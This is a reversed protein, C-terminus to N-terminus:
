GDPENQRRRREWAESIVDALSSAGEGKDQEPETEKVIEMRNERELRTAERIFAALYKAELESASMQELAELAKEQMKVALDIHREAMKRAKKVATAHAKRQVDLEYAAAREVWGYTRSWREMLATSKGLKQGVARLSRSAGMKRYTEFAEFAKASEGERQEWPKNDGRKAM